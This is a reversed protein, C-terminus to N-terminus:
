ARVAPSGTAPRAAPAGELGEGGATGSGGAAVGGDAGEGEAVTRGTSAGGEHEAVIQIVLARISPVKATVQVPLLLLMARKSQVDRALQGIAPLYLLFIGGSFVALFAGVFSMLFLRYQQVITEGAESYWKAIQLFAPSLYKKVLEDAVAFDEGALEEKLDYTTYSVVTENLGTAYLSYSGASGGAATATGGDGGGGTVYTGGAAQESNGSQSADVSSGSIDSGWDSSTEVKRIGIGTTSNPFILTSHRRDRIRRFRSVFDRLGSQLGSTLVAGNFNRCTDLDAEGNESLSIFPCADKLM